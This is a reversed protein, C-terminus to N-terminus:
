QSFDEQGKDKRQLLNKGYEKTKPVFIQLFEHFSLVGDRDKDYREFLLDIDSLNLNLYNNNNIFIEFEVVSLYGNRNYNIMHFLEQVNFDPRLSLNKRKEQLIL